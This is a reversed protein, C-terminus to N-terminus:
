FQIKTNRGLTGREGGAGNKGMAYMSSPSREMGNAIRAVIRPAYVRRDFRISGMNTAGTGPLSRSSRFGTARGWAGIGAAETTGSDEDPEASCFTVADDLLYERRDLESRAPIPLTCYCLERSPRLTSIKFRLGETLTANGFTPVDMPFWASTCSFSSSPYSVCCGTPERTARECLWMWPPFCGEGTQNGSRM